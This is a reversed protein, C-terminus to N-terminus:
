SVPVFVPNSQRQLSTPLPVCRNIILFHPILLEWSESVSPGTVVSCYGWVAVLSSGSPPFFGEIERLDLM